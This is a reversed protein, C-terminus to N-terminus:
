GRVYTFYVTASGPDLWVQGHVEADFATSRLWEPAGPGHPALEPPVDPAASPSWGYSSRLAEVRDRVLVAFGEYIYDMPGIDPCTRPRAERWRWHAAVPEGLLPVVDRVRKPDDQVGSVDPGASARCGAVEALQPALVAGASCLGLTCLLVVAAVVLAIRTGRTM